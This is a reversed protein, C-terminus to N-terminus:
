EPPPCTSERLHTRNRGGWNTDKCFRHWCYLEPLGRAEVDWSALETGVYTAPKAPTTAPTKSHDAMTCDPKKCTTVGPFKEELYDIMERLTAGM